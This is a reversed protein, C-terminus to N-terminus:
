EEKGEFDPEQLADGLVTHGRLPAPMQRNRKVPLPVPQIDVGLAQAVKLGDVFAGNAKWRAKQVFEDRQDASQFCVVLYFNNDTLTRYADRRARKSAQIAKVTESLEAEVNAEPDDADPLAAIPSAGDPHAALLSGFNPAAHGPPIRTITTRTGGVQLPKREIPKM